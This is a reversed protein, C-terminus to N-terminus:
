SFLLFLPAAAAPPLVEDMRPLLLLAGVSALEDRSLRYWDDPAELEFRREAFVIWFLPILLSFLIAPAPIAAGIFKDVNLPDDWLSRVNRAWEWPRWSNEKYVGILALAPSRKFYVLFGSKFKSFVFRSWDVFRRM